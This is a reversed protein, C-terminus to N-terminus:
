WALVPICAPSCRGSLVRRFSILGGHCCFREDGGDVASFERDALVRVCPKKVGDSAIAPVSWDVVAEDPRLRGAHLPEFVPPVPVPVSLGLKGSQNVYGTRGDDHHPFVAQPMWALFVSLSEIGCEAELNEGLLEGVAHRMRTARRKHYSLFM